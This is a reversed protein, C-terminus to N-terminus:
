SHSLPKKRQFNKKPYPHVKNSAYINAQDNIKKIVSPAVMEQKILADPENDPAETKPDANKNFDEQLSSKEIRDSVVAKDPPTEESVDTAIKEEIFIEEAVIEKVPNEQTSTKADETPSKNGEIPADVVNDNETSPDVSPVDVEVELGTSDTTTAMEEMTSSMESSSKKENSKEKALKSTHLIVIQLLFLVLISVAQKIM